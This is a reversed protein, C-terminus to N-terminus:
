PHKLFYKEKYNTYLETQFNKKSSQKNQLDINKTLVINQKINIRSNGSNINQDLNTSKDINDKISFFFKKDHNISQSKDKTLKTKKNETLNDSLISDVLTIEEIKKKDIKKM